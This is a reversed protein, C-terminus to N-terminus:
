TKAEKKKPKLFGLLWFQGKIVTSGDSKLEAYIPGKPIELKWDVDIHLSECLFVDTLTMEDGFSVNFFAKAYNDSALGWSKVKLLHHNPVNVFNEPYGQLSMKTYSNSSTALQGLVFLSDSIM